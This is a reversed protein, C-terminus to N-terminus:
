GALGGAHPAAGVPPLGVVDAARLLVGDDGRAVLLARGAVRGGALEVREDPLIQARDQRVRRADRLRERPRLAAVPGGLLQLRAPLQEALPGRTEVLLELPQGLGVQAPDHRQGLVLAPAALHLLLLGPERPLALVELDLRGLLRVHRGLHAPGLLEAAPDLRAQGVGRELPLPLEDLEEDVPHHDGVAVDLDAIHDRGARAALLGAKTMQTQVIEIRWRAECVRVLEAPTTGAPGYALHYALESPDAADRRVLLWRGMGSADADALVLCVWQGRGVEGVRAATPPRRWAEDPLRAGLQAARERRGRYAVATAKPIMLVDPRRRQELWRRFAHSRGYFSDAVVWRAPVGAAFARALLRKALTIKTAFRTGKPIGAAARRERDRAWARPLSLSRDISATGRDSAYALFVGIQANATAGAAGCYQRAVGCSRTGQKLFGTEDVSRVGSAADGLHEVVYARLDDRVGEADWTAENLLRQVGHPDAEGIAEALQWGHKREVRALLGALSRRARERVAVRRFRHAVREHVEALAASWRELAAVEDTVARDAAMM